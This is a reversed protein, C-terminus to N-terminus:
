SCFIAEIQTPSTSLSYSLADCSSPPKSVAALVTPSTNTKSGTASLANAQVTVIIKPSLTDIFQESAYKRVFVFCSGAQVGSLVGRTTVTCVSNTTTGFTLTGTGSGGLSDLQIQSNLTVNKAPSLVSLEEQPFRYGFLGLENTLISVSGDVERFFVAHSDNPLTEKITEPIRQWMLGDSSWFVESYLYGRPMNIEFAKEVRIIGVGSKDFIQVRAVFFGQDNEIDTSFSSVLFVANTKTAHSPVLLKLKVASSQGIGSSSILLDNYTNAPAEPFYELAAVTKLATTQNQNTSIVDTLPVSIVVSNTVDTAAKYTANGSQSARISCVGAAIPHVRQTVVRCTNLTNSTYTVYLGSTTSSSLIQDISNASMAILSDFIITQALLAESVIITVTNSPEDSLPSFVSSKAQISLTGSQATGLLNFRARTSNVFAVSDFNLGTTGVDVNFGFKDLDSAFNIGNLMVQPSTAGNQITSSSSILPTM